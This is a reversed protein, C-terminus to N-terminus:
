IQLISERFPDSLAAQFRKSNISLKITSKKILTLAIKSIIGFNEASNGMRKRSQDEKFSVDLSWHLKNEIGWHSRVDENFVQATSRKSSIYYRVSQEQKGSTKNIRSARIRILTNIGPWDKYDDFHTLTTITDCTRQEIRGHDLTHSTHNDQLETIVFVKEIQELLGKQNNKVQLIYDANKSLIKKSIERQCGMADITITCGDLTLLDLLQPIATIENSKQDTAKQGLCLNQKSVFASVMHIPAKNASRDHSGRMTKGDIAVVEGKTIKHLSGTWEIFYKGFEESDIQAFLRSLTSSCPTGGEYPFYKRFWDLKTRGFLSIDKWSDSGSVVASIVLFIM